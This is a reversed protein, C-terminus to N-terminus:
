RIRAQPIDEPSGLQNYNLKAAGSVDVMGSEIGYIIKRAQFEDPEAGVRARQQLNALNHKSGEFVLQEKAEVYTMREATARFRNGEVITSGLASMEIAREKGAPMEAIRLTNCTMVIGKPGLGDRRNPDLTQDWSQVPGYVTRVFHMFKGERLEINGRIENQYDIRLYVLPASSNANSKRQDTRGADTTGNPAHIDQGDVRTSTIWGPGIATFDGTRRNLTLDRSQMRDRSILRQRKDFTQNETRVDGLFKLEVVDLDSLM